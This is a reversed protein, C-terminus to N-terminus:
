FKRLYEKLVLESWKEWKKDEIKVIETFLFKGNSLAEDKTQLIAGSNLKVHFVIGFHVSNVFDSDDNILGVFGANNIKTVSVEEEFERKCANTISEEGIGDCPNIHGGIGFSWLEHLRNESGKNSRQYCFIKDDCTVLCYPIVQKFDKNNEAEDRDVYFLNEAILLKDRLNKARDRVIMGEFYDIEKLKNTSFVLVKEGKYKSVYKESDNIENEIKDWSWKSM